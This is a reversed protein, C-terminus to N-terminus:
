EKEKVPIIHVHDLFGRLILAVGMRRVKGDCLSEYLAELELAALEDIHPHEEPLFESAIEEPTLVTFSISM